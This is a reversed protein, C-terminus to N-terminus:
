KTSQLSILHTKLAEEQTIPNCRDYDNSFALKNEAYTGLKLSDDLDEIPFIMKNLKASPIIFNIASIGIAIIQLSLSSYGIKRMWILNGVAM